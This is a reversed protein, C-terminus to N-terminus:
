DASSRSAPEDWETTDEPFADAYWDSYRERIALAMEADLNTRWVDNAGMNHSVQNYALLTRDDRFVFEAREGGRGLMRLYNAALKPDQQRLKQVVDQLQAKGRDVLPKIREVTCASAIEDLKRDPLGMGLFAAAERVGSALDEYVDRYRWWLVQSPYSERYGKLQWYRELSQDIGAYLRENKDGWAVKRSVAVDRLDRFIYAVKTRGGELLTPVLTLVEHTKVLHWREDMAWEQLTKDEVFQARSSSLAPVTFESKFSM